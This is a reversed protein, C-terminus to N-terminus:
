GGQIPAIMLVRDHNNLRHSAWDARRIVSDNVAIAIREMENVSIQRLLEALTEGQALEIEQDNLFIRIM